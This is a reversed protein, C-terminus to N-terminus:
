ATALARSVRNAARLMRRSAPTAPVDAVVVNASRERETEVQFWIQGFRNERSIREAEDLASEREHAIGFVRCGEAVFLWYYAANQPTLASVPISARLARFADERKSSVAHSLLNVSAHLRIRRDSANVAVYELVRRAVDAIRADAVDSMFSALDVFIRMRMVEDDAVDLARAAWVVADDYLGRSHAIAGRLLLARPLVDPARRAGMRIVDQLMEEAGPLNGRQRLVNVRGLQARYAISWHKTARGLEWARRYV